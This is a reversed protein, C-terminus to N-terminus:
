LQAVVQILHRKVITILRCVKNSDHALLPLFTHPYIFVKAQAHFLGLYISLSLSSPFNSSIDLTHIEYQIYFHIDFIIYILLSKYM